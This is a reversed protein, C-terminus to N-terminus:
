GRCVLRWVFAAFDPSTQSTTGLLTAPKHYSYNIAIKKAAIVPESNFARIGCGLSDIILRKVQEIVDTPLDCFDLNEAYDVLREVTTDM